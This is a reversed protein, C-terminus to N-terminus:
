ELIGQTSVSGGTELVSSGDRLPFTITCVIGGFKMELSGQGKLEYPVRRTILETGFGSRHSPGASVPVGRESWVFVLWQEGDRPEITWSISLRGSPHIVAGYKVANTALEHAALGLVEAAQPSLAVEPGRLEIREEDAAQAILEDRILDELNVRADAQRTLLVQTRALADIRGELHQAYDQLSQEGDLSRRMISRIIALINRVRHQLEALLVQQRDQLGRLDDVDTSTGLWEPVSADERQVATARVSFHRYRKEAQHYIRVAMDLPAGADARAWAAEAAGRDDPHLACLWGYDASEEISLGTFAVWQPSAWTWRGGDVARWVLQPIGEILTRFRLESESLAQNKTELEVTRQEVRQDLAKNTELLSNNATELEETLVQMEEFAVRLEEQDQDARLQAAMGAQAAHGHSISVQSYASNAAQLERAQATVRRLLRDREAVLRDIEDGSTELATRLQEVEDRLRVITRKDEIAHADTM